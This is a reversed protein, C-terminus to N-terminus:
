DRLDDILLEIAPFYEAATTGHIVHHAAALCHAKSRANEVAGDKWHREPSLTFIVCASPNAKFLGALARSLVAAEEDVGMFRRKVQRPPFNHCNAVVTRTERDEHVWATGLTLFVHVDPRQLREAGASLANNIGEVCCELNMNSFASHHQLSCLLETVEDCELDAVDNGERTLMREITM